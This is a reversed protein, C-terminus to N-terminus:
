RGPVFASSKTKLRPKVWIEDASQVQTVITRPSQATLWGRVPAPLYPALDQQLFQAVVLIVLERAGGGLM